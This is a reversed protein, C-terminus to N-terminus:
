HIIIITKTRHGQNNLLAGTILQHLGIKFNNNIVRIIFCVKTAILILCAIDLASLM